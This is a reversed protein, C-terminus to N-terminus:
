ETLRVAVKGHLTERKIEDLADNLIVQGSEDIAHRVITGAVCDYAIVQHQVVGDLTIRLRRGIEHDFDEQEVSYRLPAHETTM